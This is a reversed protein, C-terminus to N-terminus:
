LNCIARVGLIFLKSRDPTRHSATVCASHFRPPSSYTMGNDDARIMIAYLVALTEGFPERGRGGIATNSCGDAPSAFEM